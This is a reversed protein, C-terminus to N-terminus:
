KSTERQKLLRNFFKWFEENTPTEDLFTVIKYIEDDTPNKVVVRQDCYNIDWLDDM